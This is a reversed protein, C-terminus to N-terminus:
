VGCAIYQKSATKRPQSEWSVSMKASTIQHRHTMAECKIWISHFQILDNSSWVYWVDDSDILSHSNSSQGDWGTSATGGFSRCLATFERWGSPGLTKRDPQQWPTRFHTRWLIDYVRTFTWLKCVPFDGHEIPLDVIEIAMKLLLTNLKWPLDQSNNKAAYFVVRFLAHKRWRWNEYTGM